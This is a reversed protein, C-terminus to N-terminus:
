KENGQKTIQKAAEDAPLDFAQKVALAAEEWDEYEGDSSIELAGPAILQALLLTACVDQDYPERATECFVFADETERDLWFTEYNEGRSEDGNFVINEPTFRPSGTGLSGALNSEATIKAAKDRLEDWEEPTFDRQPYWYHTYGM